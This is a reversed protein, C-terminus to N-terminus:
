GMIPVTQLQLVALNSFIPQQADSPYRSFGGPPDQKAADFVSTWRRAIPDWALVVVTAQVLDSADPPGVADLVVEDPAVGDLNMHQESRVRWNSPIFNAVPPLPVPLTTTTTSTSKAAHAQSGSSCAACLLVVGIVLATVRRSRSEIGGAVM